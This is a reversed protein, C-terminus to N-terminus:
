PGDAIKEAFGDIPKASKFSFDYFHIYSLDVGDMDKSADSRTRKSSMVAIGNKM